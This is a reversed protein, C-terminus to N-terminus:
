LTDGKELASKIIKLYKRLAKGKSKPVLTILNSVKDYESEIYEKYSSKDTNQGFYLKYKSYPHRFLDKHCKIINYYKGNDCVFIDDTIYYKHKILYKKLLVGDHQPGLVFDKIDTKNNKLIKVIEQGGMGCIVAMEAVAYKYIGDCVVHDFSVNMGHLLTVAKNLCMESIDSVLAYDILKNEFLYATLKGHDCGVDTINRKDVFSAVAKLRPSLKINSM